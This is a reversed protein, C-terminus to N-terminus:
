YKRVVKKIRLKHHYYDLFTDYILLYKQNIESRINILIFDNRNFYFSILQNLKVDTLTNIKYLNLCEILLKLFEDEIFNNNNSL